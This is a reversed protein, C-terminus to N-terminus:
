RPSFAATVARENSMDVVCQNSGACACSWGIFSSGVNPTAVLRVASNSPYAVACLGSLAGSTIVCSLQPSADPTSVTGTGAGGGQVRLGHQITAPLRPVNPTNGCSASGIALLVTAVRWGTRERLARRRHSNIM